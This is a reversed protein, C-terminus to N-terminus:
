KSICSKVLKSYFLPHDRGFQLHSEAEIQCKYTYVFVEAWNLITWELNWKPITWPNKRTLLHHKDPNLWTAIGSNTQTLGGVLTKLKEMVSELRSESPFRPQGLGFDRYMHILTNAHWNIYLWFYTMTFLTNYRTLNLKIESKGKIWLVYFHMRLWKLCLSEIPIKLCEGCWGRLESAFKLVGATNRDGGWVSKVLVFECKWVFLTTVLLFYVCLWVCCECWILCCSFAVFPYLYTM